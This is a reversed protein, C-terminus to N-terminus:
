HTQTQPTPQPPRNNKTKLCFVAYSLRMLSQLESTHEESREYDARAKPNSALGLKEVVKLRVRESQMIDTQTSLYDPALQDAESSQKGLTEPARVDILVQATAQYSKDSFLVWIFALMLGIAAGGALMLWRAKLLRFFQLFTM